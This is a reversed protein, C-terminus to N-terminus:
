APISEEPISLKPPITLTQETDWNRRLSGVTGDATALSRAIITVYVKKSYNNRLSSRPTLGAQSRKLGKWVSCISSLNEKGEEIAPLIGSGLSVVTVLTM